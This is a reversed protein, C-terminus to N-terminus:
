IVTVAVSLFSPAQTSSEEHRVKVNMMSAVENNTPSVNELILFKSAFDSSVSSSQMSSETKQTATLTVHADDEVQEYSKEQSVDEDKDDKLTFTPNEDDDSDTRKSDNLKIRSMNMFGVGQDAGRRLAGYVRQAKIRKKSVSVGPTDKIVVGTTPMITSKKAPKKTKKPKKAPEEELVPSLKKSPLTVKKFKRAKMPTAKGTSFDYYTKYAKSDKIAQNIMGDPILAGYKQYDKTRSVFKLTGLLTDDHVTYLNIKNRNIIAAFTRRSMEDESPPVVFDQNHLRPYIQLIKRFVKTDVRCKKKDPKFQYADSDRIKKITNDIHKARSQQVNNCCLAIASKNDCYLPIKNFQFGYNSIATSKQRKSSWSILREGLFQVIGSTNRRTDQCGAHDADAFATLAVSSDCVVYILDPRNSTLYMLSGIMGRYLTADVPKGQLDEDLKSKEVMSTDQSVILSHEQDQTSPISTSPADQDILTSVQSDAIDVARPAVAIPVPSDAYTPPNFYEDFM